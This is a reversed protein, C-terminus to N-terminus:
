SRIPRCPPFHWAARRIFRRISEMVALVYALLVIKPARLYMGCATIYWAAPAATPSRLPMDQRARAYAYAYAYAHAPLRIRTGPRVPSAGVSRTLGALPGPAKRYWDVAVV